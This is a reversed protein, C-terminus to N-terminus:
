NIESARIDEKRSVPTGGPHGNIFFTLDYVAGRFTYWLADEDCHEAVEELPITPLEPRSPPTNPDEPAISPRQFPHTQMRKAPEMFAVGASAGVLGLFAGVYALVEKSGTNRTSSNSSGGGSSKSQAETALSRAAVRIVTPRLKRFAQSSLMTIRYLVIRDPHKILAIVAIIGRMRILDKLPECQIQM